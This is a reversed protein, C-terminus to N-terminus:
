ILKKGQWSSLPFKIKNQKIKKMKSSSAVCIIMNPRTPKTDQDYIVGDLDQYFLEVNSFKLFNKETIRTILHFQNIKPPENYPVDFILRYHWASKHALELGKQMHEFVGRSVVYDYKPMNPIFKKLDTQCYNINSAKYNKKSYEIAEASIDVGTIKVNKLESLIKCGYGVGCGLDIIGIKKFKLYKQDKLIIKKFFNYSSQHRIVEPDSPSKPVLREGKNAIRQELRSLPKNLSSIIKKIKKCIITIKM